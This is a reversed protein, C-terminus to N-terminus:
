LVENRPGAGSSGSGIGDDDPLVDFDSGSKVVSEVLRRV